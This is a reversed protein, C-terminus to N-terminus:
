NSIKLSHVRLILFFVLGSSIASKSDAVSFIDLFQSLFITAYITSVIYVNPHWITVQSCFKRCTFIRTARLSFYNFRTRYLYNLKFKGNNKQCFFFWLKLSLMEFVDGELITNKSFTKFYRMQALYIFFSFFILPTVMWFDNVRIAM